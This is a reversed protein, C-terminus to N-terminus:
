PSGLLGLGALIKERPWHTLNMLEELAAEFRPDSPELTRLERWLHNRRRLLDARVKTSDPV